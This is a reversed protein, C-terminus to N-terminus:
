KDGEEPVICLFVLDDQSNNMFQHLADNPVYAISGAGIQHETGELFLTGSGSVVYNIHPWPHTHRPTYGGAAIVFQRMVWGEWGDQPGILVQRIVQSAAPNAVPIMERQQVHGVFM